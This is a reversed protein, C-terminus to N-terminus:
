GESDPLTQGYAREARAWIEEVDISDMLTGEQEIVKSGMAAGLRCAAIHDWGRSLGYLLGGRFADGAGTPDVVQDPKCAPLTFTGDASIISVGKEGHTVIALPTLASITKEATKVAAHLLGWEYDNVIVGSSMQTLRKLEDASFAIIQQGPDFFVPMKQQACWQMGATMQRTDRASVIAYQLDDREDSLDPWTGHADAGPHFFAIQREDRDTGIIATATVHEKQEEIYTVDIGREQLLAKYAGGDSGVTGVVLPDGGLLRLNWAINAATGGHHRTYRPSFFSLSLNQLSAPNIADAFSGEYGLLIDYAISGTILIKKM